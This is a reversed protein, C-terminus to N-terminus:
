RDTASIPQGNALAAVIATQLAALDGESRRFSAKRPDVPGGVYPDDVHRPFLHLHLHPLTNGHIEYNTKVPQVVDAVARAVKMSDVWFAAQEAVPLEYPEVVHTRAVVCVYGPLPADREATVWCSATEAIIDFPGGDCCIVCGGSSLRRQWEDADSWVAGGTAGLDAKENMTGRYARNPVPLTM